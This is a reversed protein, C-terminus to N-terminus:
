IKYYEGPCYTRSVSMSRSKIVVQLVEAQLVFQRLLLYSIPYITQQLLQIGGGVGGKKRRSVNAM